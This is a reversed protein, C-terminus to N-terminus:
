AREARSVTLVQGEDGEFTWAFGRRELEPYLLFPERDMLVILQDDPAMGTIAELIRVMPEPPELGRNDLHIETMGSLMCRHPAATM